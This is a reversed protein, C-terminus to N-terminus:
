EEPSLAAALDRRDPADVIAEVILPLEREAGFAGKLSRKMQYVLLESDPKNPSAYLIGIRRGPLRLTRGSHSIIGEILAFADQYIRFCDAVPTDRELTELFEALSLLILSTRMGKARCEDSFDVIEKLSEQADLRVAKRELLRRSEVFAASLSGIGSALAEYYAGPFGREQIRETFLFFGLAEAGTTVPLVAIKSLSSFERVSFFIHLKRLDEKEIVACDGPGELAPLIFKRPIRLRHRTTEDFGSQAWPAFSDSEKDLLFLGSKDRGLTDVM